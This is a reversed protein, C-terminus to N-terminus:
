ASAEKGADAVIEIALDPCLRECLGCGTCNEEKEPRAKGGPDLVLTGTPCFNVCIGCAKCWEGQILVVFRRTGM